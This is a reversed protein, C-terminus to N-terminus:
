WRPLSGRTRLRLERTLTLGISPLSLYRLYSRSLPFCLAMFWSVKCYSVKKLFLLRGSSSRVDYFRVEANEMEGAQKEEQKTAVRDANAKSRANCYASWVDEHHKALHGTVAGSVALFSVM